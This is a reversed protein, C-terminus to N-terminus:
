RFNVFIIEKEFFTFSTLSSFLLVETANILFFIFKTFQIWSIEIFALSSVIFVNLCSIQDLSLSSICWVFTLKDRELSHFYINSSLEKLVLIHYQFLTALFLIFLGYFLKSSFSILFLSRIDPFDCQLLLSVWGFNHFM